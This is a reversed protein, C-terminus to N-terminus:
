RQGYCLLVVLSIMNLCMRRVTAALGLRLWHETGQCPRFHPQALLQIIISHTQIHYSDLPFCSGCLLRYVILSSRYDKCHYCRWPVQSPLGQSVGPYSDWSLLKRIKPKLTLPFGIEKVLLHQSTQTRSLGGFINLLLESIINYYCM